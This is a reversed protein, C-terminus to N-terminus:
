TPSGPASQSAVLGPAELRMGIEDLSRALRQWDARALRDRERGARALRFRPSDVKVIKWGGDERRALLNRLDLNRDRFGAHHLRHVLATLCEILQDTGTPDLRPLLDAMTEGTWAETVLVARRLMGLSRSEAVGRARPGGFGNERLWNLALQERHPRSRAFLTNRGIGRSRDRWTTYDYTKIYYTNSDTKWTTVWSSRHSTVPTGFGPSSLDTLGHLHHQLLESRFEEDAYIWRTSFRFLDWPRMVLTYNAAM